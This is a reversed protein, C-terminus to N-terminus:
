VSLRRAPDSELAAVCRVNIQHLLRETVQDDRLIEKPVLQRFNTHDFDVDDRLYGLQFRAERLFLREIRNMRHTRFSEEDVVEVGTVGLAECLIAFCQAVTIPQSSTVNFIFSDRREARSLHWLAEVVYDIPVLNLRALPNALVRLKLDGSFKGCAATQAVHKVRHLARVIAYYGNWGVSRGTASHGILISPRAISVPLRCERRYQDVLLEAERKSCEYLNRPPLRPDPLQEVGVKGVVPSVYATSVFCLNAGKRKNCLKAFKLVNETGHVNHRTIEDRFRQRSQFSAACHWIEDVEYALNRLCTEGLGLTPFAVNGEVVDLRGEDYSQQFRKGDGGEDDVARLVELLRRAPEPGRVLAIVRSDRRLLYAILFAGLFGTGGTVFATRAAM